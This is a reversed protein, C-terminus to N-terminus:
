PPAHGTGEVFEVRGGVNLYICKQRFRMCALRLLDRLEVVRGRAIAVFYKRSRDQVREGTDPDLYWGAYLNPSRTGGGFALLEQELWLWAKPSHPKGDSLVRDRRVPILFSCELLQQSAV